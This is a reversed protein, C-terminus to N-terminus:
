KLKVRLDPVAVNRTQLSEQIIQSLARIAQEVTVEHRLRM